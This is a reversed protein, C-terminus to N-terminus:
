VLMFEMMLGVAEPCNPALRQLRRYANLVAAKQRLTAPPLPEDRLVCSLNLVRIRDARFVAKTFEVLRAINFAKCSDADLHLLGHEPYTHLVCASEVWGQLATVGVDVVSTIPGDPGVQYVVPDGLPRMECLETVDAMFGRVVEVGELTWRECGTARIFVKTGKTPDIM